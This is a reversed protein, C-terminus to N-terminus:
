ADERFKNIIEQQDRTLCSALLRAVDRWPFHLRDERDEWAFRVVVGGKFGSEFNVSVQAESATGWTIALAEALDSEEDTMRRQQM